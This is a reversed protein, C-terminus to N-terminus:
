KLCPHASTSKEGIECIPVDNFTGPVDLYPTVLGWHIWYGGKARTPSRGKATFDVVLDSQSCACGRAPLRRVCSIMGSSIGCDGERASVIRQLTMGDPLIWAFYRFQDSARTNSISIRYRQAGVVHMTVAFPLLSTCRRVAAPMQCSSTVASIYQLTAGYAEPHPRAGAGSAVSAFLCVFAALALAVRTGM